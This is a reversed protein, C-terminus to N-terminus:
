IARNAYVLMNKIYERRELCFSSTFDYYFSRGAHTVSAVNVCADGLCLIQVYFTNDLLWLKLYPMSILKLLLVATETSSFNYICCHVILIYM